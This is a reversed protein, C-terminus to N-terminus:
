FNIKAGKVGNSYKLEGTIPDPFPNFCTSSRLQYDNQDYLNKFIGEIRM